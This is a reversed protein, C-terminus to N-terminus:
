SLAYLDDFKAPQIEHHPLSTIALNQGSGKEDDGDHDNSSMM